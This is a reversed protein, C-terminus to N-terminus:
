KMKIDYSLLLFICKALPHKQWFAERLLQNLLNIIFM